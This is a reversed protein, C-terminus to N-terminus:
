YKFLTGMLSFFNLISDYTYLEENRLNTYYNEWFNKNDDM